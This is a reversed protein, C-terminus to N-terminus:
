HLIGSPISSQPRLRWARDFTAHTGGTLEWAVKAETYSAAPHQQIFTLAKAVSPGTVVGGTAMWVGCPEQALALPAQSAGLRGEWELAGQSCQTRRLLINQDTDGGQFNSGRGAMSPTHSGAGPMLNPKATHGVILIARRDRLHDLAAFIEAMDQQLNENRNHIKALVDIVILIPNVAAIQSAMWNFHTTNFINVRSPTHRDFPDSFYLGHQGDILFGHHQIDLLRKKWLGPPTDLQFYMVPGAATVPKGLFTSGDAVAQAMQLALFSKGVKPAGNLAVKGGVPLFDPIIEAISLNPMLVFDNSRIPM